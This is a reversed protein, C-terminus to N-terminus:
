HGLGVMQSVVILPDSPLDGLQHWIRDYETKKKNGPFRWILISFFVEKQQHRYTVIVNKKAKKKRRPIRMLGLPEVGGHLDSTDNTGACILPDVKVRLEIVAESGLPPVILFPSAVLLSM